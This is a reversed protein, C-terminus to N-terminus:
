VEITNETGLSGVAALDLHCDAWSVKTIAAVRFHLNEGIITTKRDPGSPKNKDDGFRVDASSRRKLANCGSPGTNESLL